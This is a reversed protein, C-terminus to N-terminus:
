HYPMEHDHRRRLTQRKYGNSYESDGVHDVLDDMGNNPDHTFSHTFALSLSHTLTTLGMYACKIGDIVGCIYMHVEGDREKERELERECEIEDVM